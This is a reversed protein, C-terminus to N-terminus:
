IVVFRRINHNHNVNHAVRSYGCIYTKLPKSRRWTLLTISFYCLLISSCSGRWKDWWDPISATIIGCDGWWREYVWMTSQTSRFHDRNKKTLPTLLWQPSKDGFRQTLPFINCSRDTLWNIILRLNLGFKCNKSFTSWLQFNLWLSGVGIREFESHVSNLEPQYTSPIINHACTVWYSQLPHWVFIQSYLDPLLICVTHKPM